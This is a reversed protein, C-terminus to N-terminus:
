ILWQKVIVVLESYLEFAKKLDKEKTIGYYYDVAEFLETKVEERDQIYPFWYSPKCYLHEYIFGWINNIDIKIPKSTM